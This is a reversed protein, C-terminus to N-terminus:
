NDRTDVVEHHGALDKKYWEHLPQTRLKWYRALKLATHYADEATQNALKIEISRVLGDKEELSVWVVDGEFSHETDFRVTLRCNYTHILTRKPDEHIRPLDEVKRSKSFDLIAPQTWARVKVFGISGTLSILIAVLYTMRRSKLIGKSWPMIMQDVMWDWRQQFM